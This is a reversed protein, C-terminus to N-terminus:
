RIRAPGLIVMATALQPQGSQARAIAAAIQPKAHNYTQDACSLRSSLGFGNDPFPGEAQNCVRKSARSVRVKLEQRASGQRLDLDTISVREQYAPQRQGSVVTAEQAVLPAAVLVAALVFPSSVSISKTFM